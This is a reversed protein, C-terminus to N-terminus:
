PGTQEVAKAKELTYFRLFENIDNGVSENIGSGARRSMKKVYAKWQEPRFKANLPRALTHCKSCRVAFVKYLEQYKPPYSSTDISDPGRDASEPAAGLLAGLTMGLLAARIM